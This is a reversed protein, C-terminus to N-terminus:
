PRIFALRFFFSWNSICNESFPLLLSKLKSGLRQSAHYKYHVRNGITVDLRLYTVKTLVFLLRISLSIKEIFPFNLYEFYQFSYIKLSM